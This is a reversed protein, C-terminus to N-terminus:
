HLETLNPHFDECARQFKVSVVGEELLSEITQQDIENNLYIMCQSLCVVGDGMGFDNRYVDCVKPLFVTRKREDIKMQNTLFWSASTDIQGDMNKQQLVPVAPPYAM